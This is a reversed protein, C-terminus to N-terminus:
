FNGKEEVEDENEDDCDDADGINQTQFEKLSEFLEINEDDLLNNKFEFKLRQEANLHDILEDLLNDNPSNTNFYSNGDTDDEINDDDEEMINSLRNTNIIQQENM